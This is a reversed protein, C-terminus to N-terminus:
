VEEPKNTCREFVWFEELAREETSKIIENSKADVVSVRKLLVAFFFFPSSRFLLVIFIFHVQPAVIKVTIQAFNLAMEDVPIVRVVLVDSSSM